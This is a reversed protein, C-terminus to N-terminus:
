EVASCERLFCDESQFQRRRSEYPTTHNTDVFVLLIVINLIKYRCLGIFYSYKINLIKNSRIYSNIQYTRPGPFNISKRVEACLLGCTTFRFDCFCESLKQSVTAFKTLLHDYTKRGKTFRPGPRPRDAGTNTALFWQRLRVITSHNCNFNNAVNRTSMGACLM